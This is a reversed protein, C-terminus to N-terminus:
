PKRKGEEDERGEDEWDRRLNELEGAEEYIVQCDVTSVADSELLRKTAKASKTLQEALNYARHFPYHPKAIAIGAAGGFAKPSIKMPYSILFSRPSITSQRAHGGSWCRGDAM